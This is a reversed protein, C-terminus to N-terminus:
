NNNEKFLCWYFLPIIGVLTFILLVWWSSKEIDNLRRITVGLSPLLLALRSIEFLPYWLIGEIVNPKGLNFHMDISLCIMQVLIAFSIFYRFEQRTATGKFVAYQKLSRIILKM